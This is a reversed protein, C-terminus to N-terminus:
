HCYYHPDDGDDDDDRCYHIYDINNTEVEHNSNGVQDSTYANKRKILVTILLTEKGCRFHYQLRPMMRTMTIMIM